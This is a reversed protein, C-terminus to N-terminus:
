LQKDTCFSGAPNRLLYIHQARDEQKDAPNGEATTRREASNKSRQSSCLVMCIPNSSPIHTRNKFNAADRGVCPGNLFSKLTPSPNLTKHKSLM